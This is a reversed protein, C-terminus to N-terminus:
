VGDGVKGPRGRVWGEKWRALDRDMLSEAVNSEDDNWNFQEEM